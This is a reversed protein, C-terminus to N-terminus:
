VAHDDWLGESQGPVYDSPGTESAADPAPSAESRLCQCRMRSLTSSLSALRNGAAM